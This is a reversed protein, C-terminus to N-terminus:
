HFLKVRHYINMPERRKQRRQTFLALAQGNSSSFLQGPQIHAKQQSQIHKLPPPILEYKSCTIKCCFGFASIVYRPSSLMNHLQSGWQWLYPLGSWVNMSLIFQTKTRVWIYGGCNMVMAFFGWSQVNWHFHVIMVRVCTCLSEAAAAAAAVAVIFEGTNAYLISFMETSWRCRWFQWVLLRMM